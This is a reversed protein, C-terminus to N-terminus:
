YGFSGALFVKRTLSVCSPWIVEVFSVSLKSLIIKVRDPYKILAFFIPSLCINNVRTSSASNNLWYTLNLASDALLCSRNRPVLRPKPFTCGRSCLGQSCPLRHHRQFLPALFNDQLYLIFPYLGYHPRYRFTEPCTGLSLLSLM